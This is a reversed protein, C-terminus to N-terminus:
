LRVDLEFRSIQLRRFSSLFSLETELHEACQRLFSEGSSSYIDACVTVAVGAVKGSGWRSAREM